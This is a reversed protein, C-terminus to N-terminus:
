RALRFAEIQQVSRAQQEILPLLVLTELPTSHELARQLCQLSHRASKEAMFLNEKMADENM